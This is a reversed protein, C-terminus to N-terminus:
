RSVLARVFFRLNAPKEAMRRVLYPYWGSGFPVYVRVRFGRDALQFQLDRRVGYLMQFEFRDQGRGLRRAEGVIHDILASDHTAFAPDHGSELLYTALEGFRRSISQGDQIATSSPELYAGKVLRVRAGASTLTRLDESTRHLYAQVALRPLPAMEAGLYADITATVQDSQEMDVELGLGAGGAADSISGLHARCRQPDFGLGLQSPKLSVTTDVGAAAAAAIAEAYAGVAMEVDSSDTVGEGLLNLVGGLGRTQLPRLADIAEAVSEGAVFRQAVRRTLPVQSVLRQANKRDAMWLLMRATPRMPWITPGPRVTRPQYAHQQVMDQDGDGVEGLRRFAEFFQVPQRRDLSAAVGPPAGHVPDHRQSVGIELQHGDGVLVFGQSAHKPAPDTAACALTPVQKSPRHAGRHEVRDAPPEPQRRVRTGADPSIAPREAPSGGPHVACGPVRRQGEEDLPRGSHTERSMRPRRLGREGLQHDLTVLVSQGLPQAVVRHRDAYGRTRGREEAEDEVSRASSREETRM